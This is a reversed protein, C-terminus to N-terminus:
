LNGNLSRANIRFCQAHQCAGVVEVSIALKDTQLKEPQCLIIIHLIVSILYLEYSMTDMGVKCYGSVSIKLRSKQRRRRVSVGNTTRNWISLMKESNVLVGHDLKM